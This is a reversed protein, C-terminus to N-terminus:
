GLVHADCPFTCLVNRLEFNLQLDILSKEVLFTLLPQICIKTPQQPEPFVRRIEETHTTFRSWAKLITELKKIADGRFMM